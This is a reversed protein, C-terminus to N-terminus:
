KGVAKLETKFQLHLELLDLTSRERDIAAQIKEAERGDIKGDQLADVLKSTTDADTTIKETLCQVATKLPQQKEYRARITALKHDWHCVPAGARVAGAYQHEFKAFADTESGALIAHLYQPSVHMEDAIAQVNGSLVRRTEDTLEHQHRMVQIEKINEL